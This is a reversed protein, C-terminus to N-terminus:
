SQAEGGDKNNSRLIDMFYPKYHHTWTFYNQRHQHFSVVRDFQQQYSENGGITDSKNSETTYYLTIYPKSTPYRIPAPGVHSVTIDALTIDEKRGQKLIHCNFDGGNEQGDNGCPVVCGLPLLTINKRYDCLYTRSVAAVVRVDREELFRMNYEREKLTRISLSEEFETSPTPTWTNKILVSFAILVVTSCLSIIVLRRHFRGM